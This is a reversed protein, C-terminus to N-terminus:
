IAKNNLKIVFHFYGEEKTGKEAGCYIDKIGEKLQYSVEWGGGTSFSFGFIFLFSDDSFLYCRYLRGSFIWSQNGTSILRFSLKTYVLPCNEM